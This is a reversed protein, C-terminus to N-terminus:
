SAENMEKQVISLITGLQMKVDEDLKENQYIFVCYKFVLPTQKCNSILSWVASQYVAELVAQNNIEETVEDIEKKRIKELIGKHKQLTLASVIKRIPQYKGTAFFDSWLIDLQVGSTIEGSTDPVKIQKSLEYFKILDENNTILPELSQDKMLAAILMVKKKEDISFTDFMGAINKFLFPNDSFIRQFFTIINFYKGMWQEELQVSTFLGNIARSPTPNKYYGMFWEGVEKESAFKEGLSFPVLEIVTENKFSKNSVKDYGTVKIKYTGLPYSDTFIIKLYQQNLLLANPNGMPGQYALIDNGKDDTPKGNPDYIQVDYTLHVNNSEDASYGKFFLLLNFPQGKHVKHARHINPGSNRPIRYWGDMDSDMLSPVVLADFESALVPSSPFFLIALVIIIHSAKRSIRITDIMNNKYEGLALIM